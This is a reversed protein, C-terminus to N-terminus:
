EFVFPCPEGGHAVHENWCWEIAAFMSVRVGGASFPVRHSYPAEIRPYFAQWGFHRTTDKVIHSGQVAPVWKRTEAATLKNEDAPISPKKKKTPRPKVAKVKDAHADVAAKAVAMKAIVQKAEQHVDDELVDGMLDLGDKSLASSFRLYRPNRKDFRKAVMEKIDAEACGPFALEVCAYAIDAELTPKQEFKVEFHGLIKSMMPVTMNRFGTRASFKFCNEPPTNFAFCLIGCEKPFDYSRAAAVAPPEAEFSM